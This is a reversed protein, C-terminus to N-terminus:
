ADTMQLELFLAAKIEETKLARSYARCQPSLNITFDRCGGGWGVGGGGGGRGSTSLLSSCCIVLVM